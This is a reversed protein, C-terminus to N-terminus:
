PAERPMPIWLPALDHGPAYSVRLAAGGEAPILYVESDGSRDSDFAIWRDDPSAAPYADNGAHDATLNRAESGDVRMRWVDFGQDPFRRTWVIWGGDPSFRAPGEGGYHHAPIRDNGADDTLPVPAASGQRWIWLEWSGSRDSRFLLHRGDPSWQPDADQWDGRWPPDAPKGDGDIAVLQLRGNVRESLLCEGSQPHCGILGDGVPAPGFRQPKSGASGRCAQSGHASGDAAPEPACLMLLRDGSRGWLWHRGSTQLLPKLTGNDARFVVGWEAFRDTNWALTWRQGAHQLPLGAAAGGGGALREYRADRVTVWEGERRIRTLARYATDGDAQLLSEFESQTGDEAIHTEIFRLPEDASLSRGSSRGGDSAVYDFRLNGTEADRLYLAKGEYPPGEGLLMHEAEIIRGGYLANFCQVDRREDDFRAQWCHGVLFQMPSLADTTAAPLAAALSLALVFM